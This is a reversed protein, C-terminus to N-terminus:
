DRTAREPPECFWVLAQELSLQEPLADARPDTDLFRELMKLQLAAVVGSYQSDDALDNMEHPDASLDYLRHDIGSPGFGTAYGQALDHQGTTFIYKWRETRIMAKNDALFESFVSTRHETTTGNLLPELSRGQVGPLPPVNLVDLITPVLDVFEVLADSTAPALGPAKMVLPARVAEEWMMHKEFRGHHGLLYGHDGVYVVLTNEDLGLRDLTDLVRGVNADMYEVSTYYSAVIGRMDAESLDKFEAPIWRKDEPGVPPLPMDEPSYRGAYEIPFNFPSHPEYFSVWLCFPDDGNDRLFSRAQDALYTGLSVEEYRSSPRVDANLWVRAPDRFPRWPPRTAMGDPPAQSSHRELYARHDQRDIRVDFGHHLGSNFHMKGIAGTRYGYQKLHDAITVQEEALPTRLLTVGTAHPLKGTIISQRSPTCVPSNVYARDFRMGQAALRDLNPTRILDNGYAGYVGTAHDDGMIFVINRAQLSDADASSAWAPVAQPVWATLFAALLFFRWTSPLPM